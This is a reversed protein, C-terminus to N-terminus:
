LIRCFIRRAVIVSTTTIQAHKNLRGMTERQKVSKRLRTMATNIGIRYIWTEPKSDGRFSKFSRWLQELIEQYLDDAECNAGYRAAIARIRGSNSSLLQEFESTTM